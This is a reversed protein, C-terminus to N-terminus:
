LGLMRNGATDIGAFYHVLVGLPFVFAVTLFINTKAIISIIIGAIITLIIDFLALKNDGISLTYSRLDDIISM